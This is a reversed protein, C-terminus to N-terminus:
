AQKEKQEYYARIQGETFLKKGNIVTPEPFDDRRTSHARVTAEKPIGAVGELRRSIEALPLLEPRALPDAAAEQAGRGGQSPVLRLHDRSAMVSGDALTVVGQEHSPGGATEGGPVGELGGNRGEPSEDRSLARIFTPPKEESPEPPPMYLAEESRAHTARLEKYYATLLKYAQRQNEDKTLEPDWPAYPTQIRTIDGNDLALVMRGAKKQITPMEARAGMIRKWQNETYSGVLKLPFLPTLSVGGFQNDKFDQFVAIIHVNVERGLRLISAVDRWVPDAASEGSQKDASHQEKLIDALHNAEELFIYLPPFNTRLKNKKEYNRAALVEAVWVLVARMDKPARPNIYEHVGEIGILPTLSVMKPDIVIITGSKMLMQVALWQLFASKGGGSGVSLAWSNQEDAMKQIIPRDFTDQGLYFDDPGLSALIAQVKADWINVAAPPEPAPAPPKPAPKHTYVATYTEGTTSIRAVWEGPVRSNILASLNQRDMEGGRWSWPLRVVIRADPAALSEPLQLWNQRPEEEPLGLDARLIVWIRPGYVADDGPKKPQHRHALVCSAILAVALAVITSVRWAPVLLGLAAATLAVRALGRLAYPLYHWRRVAWILTRVIPATARAVKVCWQVRRVCWLVIRVTRDLAAAGKGRYTALWRAADRAWPRPQPKKVLSVRPPAFAVSGMEAPASTTETRLSRTGAKLVTANTRAGGRLERGGYFRAVAWVAKFLAVLGGWLAKVCSVLGAFFGKGSTKATGKKKKSAQDAMMGLVLLIGLMTINGGPLTAAGWNWATAFADAVRGGNEAGPDPPTSTHAALAATMSHM